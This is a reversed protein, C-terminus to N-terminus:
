RGNQEELYDDMCKRVLETYREIHKRCCGPYLNLYDIPKGCWGCRPKLNVEDLLKETEKIM